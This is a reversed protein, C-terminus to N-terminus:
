GRPPLARLAELEFRLLEVLRSGPITADLMELSRSYRALKADVEAQPAGTAMLMRLERVKSIKDAAYIAAPYGGLRRVRERVDDKRAEEGPIAPDDSVAAVLEAVEPGFRDELESREADTDELVDHLVAAAAVHDPHHSRDLLAAVELPHLVFPAGDAVRRQHLHRSSAFELADSTLPLHELFTLEPVRDPGM